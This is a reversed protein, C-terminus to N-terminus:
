MKSKRVQHANEDSQGGALGAAKRLAQTDHLVMLMPRETEGNSYRILDHIRQDLAPDILTTHDVGVQRVIWEAAGTVLKMFTTEALPDQNKNALLEVRQMLYKEENTKTLSLRRDEHNAQLWQDLTINPHQAILRQALIVMPAEVAKMPLKEAAEASLQRMVAGAEGDTLHKSLGIMAELNEEKTWHYPRVKIAHVAEILAYAAWSRTSPITDVVDLVMACRHDLDILNLDDKEDKVVSGARHGLLSWAAGVSFSRNATGFFERAKVSITSIDPLDPANVIAEVEAL